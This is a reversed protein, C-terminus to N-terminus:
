KNKGMEGEGEGEMRRTDEGRYSSFTGFIM